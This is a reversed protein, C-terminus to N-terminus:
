SPRRMELLLDHHRSVSHEVLFRESVLRRAGDGMSRLTDRESAAAAIANALADLDGVPVVVGTSGPIMTEATGGAAFGFTPVGAAAAELVAGPFGETQSTLILADAWALHPRVDLVSGVMEVRETLDRDVIAQEVQATMPGAGVFRLTANLEPPLRDLLDLASLPDKEKSLAGLFMLHLTDDGADHSREVDLFDAPIGTHAVRVKTPDVGLDSVLQDATMQSVAVIWDARSHLFRHLLRHRMGRLWYRPEGISAYVITPARPLGVIAAAVYKLTAGGNAFVVDPREARLHNRLSTVVDRKLGGLDSTSRPSVPVAEVFPGDRDTTLSAMSANWGRARLGSTLREGFVEAGRRRNSSVVLMIKGPGHSRAERAHQHSVPLAKVKRRWGVFATPAQMVRKRRTQPSDHLLVMALNLPHSRHGEFRVLDTRPAMLEIASMVLSPLRMAELVDDPVAADTVHKAFLLAAYTTSRLHHRTAFRVVADWDLDLQAVERLDRFLILRFRHDLIAHTALFAVRAEVPLVWVPGLPSEPAFVANSWAERTAGAACGELQTYSFLDWHLDITFRVQGHSMPINRKDAEPTKPPIAPIGPIQSLVGLAAALDQPQILLDIDTFTRMAPLSYAWEALHPGKLVTARIGADNLATLIIRLAEGMMRGRAALRAFPPLAQACIVHDDSLALVGLMGHDAALILEEETLARGLTQTRGAVLDVLLRSVDDGARWSETM